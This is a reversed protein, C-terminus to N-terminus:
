DTLFSGTTVRVQWSVYDAIDSLAKSKVEVTAPVVGGAVLVGDHNLEMLWTITQSPLVAAVLVLPRRDLVGTSWAEFADDDGAHAALERMDGIACGLAYELSTTPTPDNNM